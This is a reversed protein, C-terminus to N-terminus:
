IKQLFIFLKQFSMHAFFIFTCTVCKCVILFNDVLGTSYKKKKKILILNKPVISEKYKCTIEFSHFCM